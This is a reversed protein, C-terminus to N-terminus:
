KTDGFKGNTVVLFTFSVLAGVTGFAIKAGKKVKEAQQARCNECYKHKYGEPLIRHCKKCQRVNQAKEM